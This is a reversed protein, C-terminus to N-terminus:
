TLYIFFYKLELLIFRLTKPCFLRDTAYAQTVFANYKMLV